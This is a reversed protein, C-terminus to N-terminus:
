LTSKSVKGSTPHTFTQNTHDYIHGIGADSWRINVHHHGVLPASYLDKDGVHHEIVVNSPDIVVFAIPTLQDVGADECVAANIDAHFTEPTHSPDIPVKVMKEGPGVHLPHDLEADDDPYIHRRIHPNAVGYVIGWMTRAM